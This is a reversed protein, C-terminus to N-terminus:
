KSVSTHESSKSANAYSGLAKYGTKIHPFTIAVGEGNKVIVKACSLVRTNRFFPASQEFKTKRLFEEQRKRYTNDRVTKSAM